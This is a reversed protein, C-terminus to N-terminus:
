GRWRRRLKRFLVSWDLGVGFKELKGLTVAGDFLPEAISTALTPAAKAHDGRLMQIAVDKAELQAQRADLQARYLGAEARALRVQSKLHDVNALLQIVAVDTCESAEFLEMSVTPLQLYASLAERIRGLAEPGERPSVRFLVEAASSHIEADAEIGLDALFQTFYALYQQCTASVAKPFAFHQVLRTMEEERSLEARAGQKLRPLYNVCISRLEDLTLAKDDVLPFNVFITDQMGEEYEHYEIEVAPELALAARKMAAVYEAINWVGTWRTPEITLEASPQYGVYHYPAGLRLPEDPKDPRWEQRIEWRFPRGVGESEYDGAVLEIDAKKCEGISLVFLRESELGHLEIAIGRVSRDAKIAQVFDGNLFINVAPDAAGHAPEVRITNM